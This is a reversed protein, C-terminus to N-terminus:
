GRGTLCGVGPGADGTGADGGGTRRTGRVAGGPPQLTFNGDVRLLVAASLLVSTGRWLSEDLKLIPLIVSLIGFDKNKHM